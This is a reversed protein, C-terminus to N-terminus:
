NPECYVARGETLVNLVSSNEFVAKPIFSDINVGFTSNQRTKVTTPM